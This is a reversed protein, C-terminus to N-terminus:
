TEYDFGAVELTGDASATLKLGGPVPHAPRAPLARAAFRVAAALAGPEATVKM